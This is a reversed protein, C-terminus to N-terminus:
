DMFDDMKPINAIFDDDNDSDNQIIKLLKQEFNEYIIIDDLNIEENNEINLGYEVKLQKIEEDNLEISKTNLFEKVKRQFPKFEENKRQPLYSNEEGLEEEPDDLPSIFGIFSNLFHIGICYTLAYYGKKRFIRIFYIVALIAVVGWRETRYIIIKDNISNLYIKIKEFFSKESINDNKNNINKNEEESFYSSM